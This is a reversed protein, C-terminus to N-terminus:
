GWLGEELRPNGACVDAIERRSHNPLTTRAAEDIGEKAVKGYIGVTYETGLNDLVLLAQGPRLRLVSSIQHAAEASFVVQGSHISAPPVFFRHM